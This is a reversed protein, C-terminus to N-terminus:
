IKYFLNRIQEKIDYDGNMENKINYHPKIECVDFKMILFNNEEYFKATGIYYNELKSTMMEFISLETDVIISKIDRRNYVTDMISLIKKSIFKSRIILELSYNIIDYSLNNIYEKIQKKEKDELVVYNNIFIELNKSMNIFMKTDDKYCYCDEVKNYLIKKIIEYITEEVATELIEYTIINNRNFEEIFEDKSLSPILCAM